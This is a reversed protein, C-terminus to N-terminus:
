RESPVARLPKWVSWGTLPRAKVGMTKFNALIDAWGNWAPKAAKLSDAEIGFTIYKAKM